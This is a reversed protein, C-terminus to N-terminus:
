RNLQEEFRKVAEGSTYWRDKHITADLVRGALGKTAWGRLIDAHIRLSVPGKGVSKGLFLKAAEEFTIRKEGNLPIRGGRMGAEAYGHHHLLQVVLERIETIQRQLDKITRDCLAETGIGPAPSPTTSSRRSKM